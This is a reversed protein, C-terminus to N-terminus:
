PLEAASKRNELALNRFMEEDSTRKGWLEKNMADIRDSTKM